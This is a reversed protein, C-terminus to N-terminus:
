DEGSCTRLLWSLPSRCCPKRSRATDKPHRLSCTSTMSSSVPWDPAVAWPLSPKWRRTESTARPWTVLNVDATAGIQQGGQRLKGALTQAAVALRQGAVAVYQHLQQFFDCIPCLRAWGNRTVKLAMSSAASWAEQGNRAFAVVTHGCSTAAQWWCGDPQQGGAFPKWGLCELKRRFSERAV